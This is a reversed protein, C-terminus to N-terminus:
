RLLLILFLALLIISISIPLVRYYLNKTFSVSDIVKTKHPGFVVLYAYKELKSVDYFDYMEKLDKSDLYKAVEISFDRIYGEAIKDIDAKKLNYAEGINESPVNLVTYLRNARDIRLNFNKELEASNEKIVRKYKRYLSLRKFFSLKNM